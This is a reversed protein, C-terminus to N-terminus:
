GNLGLLTLDTDSSTIAVPHDIARRALEAALEQLRIAAVCVDEAGDELKALIIGHVNGRVGEYIQETKLRHVDPHGSHQREDMGYRKREGVTFRNVRLVVPRTTPPVYAETKRPDSGPIGYMNSTVTQGCRGGHRTIVLFGADALALAHTFFARKKIGIAECLERGGSIDVVAGNSLQTGRSAMRALTKQIGSHMAQYRRHETIWSPITPIARGRRSPTPAEPDPSTNVAPEDHTNNM